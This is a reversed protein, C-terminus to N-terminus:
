GRPTPGSMSVIAVVFIALFFRLFRKLRFNRGGMKAMLTLFGTLCFSLVFAAALRFASFEIYTAHIIVFNVVLDM